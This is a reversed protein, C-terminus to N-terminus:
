NRTGTQTYHDPGPVQHDLIFIYIICLIVYFTLFKCSFIINYIYTKNYFDILMTKICIIMIFKNFLVVYEIIWNIIKKRVYSPLYKFWFIFCQVTLTKKINEFLYSRRNDSVLTSPFSREVEVSTIHAYKFYTIDNINM